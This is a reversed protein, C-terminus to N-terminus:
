DPMVFKVAIQWCSYELFCEIGQKTVFVCQLCIFLCISFLHDSRMLYRICTVCFNHLLKEQFNECLGVLCITTGINGGWVKGLLTLLFMQCFEMSATVSQRCVQGLKVRWDTSSYSQLMSRICALSQFGGTHGREMFYGTLFYQWDKLWSVEM